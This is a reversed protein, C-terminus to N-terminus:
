LRLLEGRHNFVFFRNIKEGHIGVTTMFSPSFDPNASTRSKSNTSGSIQFGVNRASGSKNKEFKPKSLQSKINKLDNRM